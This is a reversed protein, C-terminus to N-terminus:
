RCQSALPVHAPALGDMEVFRFQPSWRPAAAIAQRVQACLEDLAKVFGPRSQEFEIPRVAWSFPAFDTAYQLKKAEADFWEGDAYVLPVVLRPGDGDAHNAALAKQRELMSHFESRCYRSQFYMSSWVAVLCKSRCVWRQLTPEWTAGYPINADFAVRAQPYAQNLRAKFDRFFVNQVWRGEDDIEIEGGAVMREGRRYSLFVDYEYDDAM